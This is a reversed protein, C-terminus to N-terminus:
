DDFRVEGPWGVRHIGDARARWDRAIMVEDAPSAGAAVLVQAREYVQMTLQDYVQRQAAIRELGEEFRQESSLDAGVADTLEVMVWGQARYATALAQDEPDDSAILYDIWAVSHPMAQM